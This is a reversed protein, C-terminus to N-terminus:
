RRNRANSIIFIGSIVMCGYAFVDGYRSYFTLPGKRLGVDETFVAKEFLVTRKRVRGAPDIVASIGTNASRVLYTKNEVARLVSMEFHQYPASTRGFWADNTINVLLAAGNRAMGAAIDPFISEFCVLTGVGLNDFGIPIPGAGASFDGVGATLKKIFPLFSRLPVYEGFPVLHMKDYKGLVDGAPSLLYASNFYDVTRARLNYNYSPSGTLIYTGTERAADGVIGKKVKEADFYFPIATEPWVILRAGDKAAQLTLDRYIELTKDQFAGDWKLGQDISGQAVGVKLKQWYFIDSDVQNIRIVGYLLVSSLLALAVVGPGVPQSMDKRLLYGASFFVAANVAVIIFSIGWVGTTDAIQILPTYGAQSYGLLVWPFGTFLYGRMYEFAVWFFGGIIMQLVKDFGKLRSFFLGFLGPYVSLYLVLSLMILASTWVPVGGYYYMSHVVWYVTGLFFVFGFAFGLFFGQRGNAGDLAFMLPVFAVWALFGFGAPPFAAILMLGSISALFIRKIM